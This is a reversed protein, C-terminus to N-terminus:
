NKISYFQVEINMHGGDNPEDQSTSRLKSEITALEIDTVDGMEIENKDIFSDDLDLAATEEDLTLDM